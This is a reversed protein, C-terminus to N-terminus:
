CPRQEFKNASLFQLYIMSLYSLGISVSISTSTLQSLLYTLLSHKNALLSIMVASFVISGPVLLILGTLRLIGKSEVIFRVAMFAILFSILSSSIFVWTMTSSNSGKFFSLSIVSVVSFLIGSTFKMHTKSLLLLTKLIQPNVILVIILPMVWIFLFPPVLFIKLYGMTHSKPTHTRFKIQIPKRNATPMREKLTISFRNLGGKWNQLLM